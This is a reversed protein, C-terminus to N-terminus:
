CCRRNSFLTLRFRLCRTLMTNSFGKTFIKNFNKPSLIKVLFCFGDHLWTHIDELLHISKQLYIYGTQKFFFFFFFPFNCTFKNKSLIECLHWLFFIVHLQLLHELNALLQFTSQICIKTCAVHKKKPISHDKREMKMVTLM